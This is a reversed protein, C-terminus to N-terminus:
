ATVKFDHPVSFTFFAKTFEVSDSLIGNAINKQLQAIVKGVLKSLRCNQVTSCLTYISNLDALM